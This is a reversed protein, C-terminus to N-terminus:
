RFEPLQITKIEGPLSSVYAAIEKIEVHTFPRAMGMMRTTAASQPNDETKYAKLAVYLYDAYQGAIKPYSPDIPKSLNSGHCSVCAAKQM